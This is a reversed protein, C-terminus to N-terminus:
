PARPRQLRALQAAPPHGPRPGAVGVEDPYQLVVTQVGPVDQLTGAGALRGRPDGGSGQGSPQEVLEADLDPAVDHREAADDCGPRCLQRHREVVRRVSGLDPHEVARRSGSIMRRISAPWAPRRCGRRRPRPRPERHRRRARCDRSSPDCARRGAPRGASTWGPRSPSDLDAEAELRRPTGPGPGRGSRGPRPGAGGVGRRNGPRSGGASCCRRHGRPRADGRPLREHDATAIFGIEVSIDGSGVTSRAERRVRGVGLALPGVDGRHRREAHDGLRHRGQHQGVGHQLLEAPIRQALHSPVVLSGTAARPERQVAAARLPPPSIGRWTTSTPSGPTRFSCPPRRTTRSSPAGSMSM